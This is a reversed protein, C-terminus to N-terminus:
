TSSSSPHVAETPDGTLMEELLPYHMPSRLEAPLTVNVRHAAEWMDGPYQNRHPGVYDWSVFVGDPRLRAALARFVRDIHSIHHGAAHNM